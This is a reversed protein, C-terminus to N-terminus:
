ALPLPVLNQFVIYESSFTIRDVEAKSLSSQAMIAAKLREYGHTYNIDDSLM